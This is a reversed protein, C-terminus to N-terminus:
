APKGHARHRKEPFLAALLSQPVIPRLVRLPRLAGDDLSRRLRASLRGRLCSHSLEPRVNLDAADLAVDCLRSLEGAVGAADRLYDAYDVFLHPLGTATASWAACAAHLEIAEAARRRSEPTDECWGMRLFSRLIEETKRRVVVIVTSAPPVIRAWVPLTFCLRPDKWMWPQHDAHESVFHRQSSCAPMDRIREIASASIAEYKWTNHFDFGAERLIAVNQEVLADAEFYGYPNNDDGDRIASSAIPGVYYGRRAFVAATLSTGSRPPGVIIVNKPM